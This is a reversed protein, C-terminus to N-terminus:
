EKILLKEIENKIGQKGTEPFLRKYEGKISKNIESLWTGRMGERTDFYCLLEENQGKHKYLAYTTGYVTESGNHIDYEYPDAKMKFIVNDKVKKIKQLIDRFEVLGDKRSADIVYKLADNKVFNGNFNTNKTQYQSYNNIPLIKM